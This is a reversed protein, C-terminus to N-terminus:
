EITEGGVKLAEIKENLRAEVASLEEPTAAKVSAATLGHPNNKNKVHDDISKSISTVTQSTTSSSETLAGVKGKIEDVSTSVGSVVVDTSSQVKKLEELQKVISGLEEGGGQNPPM